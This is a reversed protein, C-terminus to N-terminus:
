SFVSTYDLSDAMRLWVLESSQSAKCVYTDEKMRIYKLGKKHMM